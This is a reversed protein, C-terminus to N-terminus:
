ATVPQARDGADADPRFPTPAAAELEAASKQQWVHIGFVTTVVMMIPTIMVKILEVGAATDTIAIWTVVGLLWLLLVIATERKWTKRLLPNTMRESTAM